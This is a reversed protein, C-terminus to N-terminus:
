DSPAVLSAKTFFFIIHNNIQQVAAFVPVRGSEKILPTGSCSTVSFQQPWSEKIALSKSLSFRYINPPFYRSNGNKYKPPKLPDGFITFIIVRTDKMEQFWVSVNTSNM